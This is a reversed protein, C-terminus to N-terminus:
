VYYFEEFVRKYCDIARKAEHHNLVFASGEHAIQNRVKHAEWADDLTAFDGRVVRKLKEGISEGRYGMRNLLDDLIIDADIIAQRWNNPSDSAIHEKVSEWRKSLGQDAGAPVEEFAPVTKLNYMEDEKRRIYKLQEVCYIIAIFLFLSLVLSIGSLIGIINKIVGVVSPYSPVIKDLFGFAYSILDIQPPSVPQM